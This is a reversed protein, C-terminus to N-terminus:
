SLTPTESLYVTKDGAFHLHFQDPAARHDEVYVPIQQDPLHSLTLEGMNSRFGSHNLPKQYLQQSSRYFSDRGLLLSGKM